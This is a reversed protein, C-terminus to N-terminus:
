SLVTLSSFFDNNQNEMSTTMKRIQEGKLLPNNKELSLGILHPTILWWETPSAGVLGL